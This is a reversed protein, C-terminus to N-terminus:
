GDGGGTDPAVLIEAVGELQDWDRVVFSVIVSNAAWRLWDRFEM